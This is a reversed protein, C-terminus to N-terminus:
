SVGAVSALLAARYRTFVAAVSAPAEGTLDRVASSVVNLAGQAVAQDISVVVEVVPAPLGAALLGQHAEEVALPIYRVPRGSVTSLERAIDHYTLAAPGTVEYIMHDHGPTTLVAVATRACDERAVWGVAGDGAAARLEGTAIAQPGNRLLVETYFNNRLFAYPLGSAQIADETAGHERLFALPSTHPNIASTYTIHRVAARAAADVANKHLQVRIDGVVDTSILLLRDVGTLTEALAEPQAFDGVAVRVGKAALDALKDPTRTLALVRGPEVRELLLEVIRRGLQGSAGTIAITGSLKNVTQKTRKKPNESL